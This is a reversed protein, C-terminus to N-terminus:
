AKKLARKILTAIKARSAVWRKGDYRYCRVVQQDYNAIIQRATM